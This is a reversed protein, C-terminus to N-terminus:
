RRQQMSLKPAALAATQVELSLFNIAVPTQLLQNRSQALFVSVNTNAERVKEQIKSPIDSLWYAKMCESM